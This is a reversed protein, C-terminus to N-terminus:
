KKKKIPNSTGGEFWLNNYTRTYFDRTGFGACYGTCEYRGPEGADAVFISWAGCYPCWLVRENKRTRVYPPREDPKPFPFWGGIHWGNDKAVTIPKREVKIPVREVCM